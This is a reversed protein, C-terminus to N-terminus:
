APVLMELLHRGFPTVRARKRTTDPQYPVLIGWGQLEQVEALRNENSRYDVHSHGLEVLGEADERLGGV